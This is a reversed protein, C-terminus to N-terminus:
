CQTRYIVTYASPFIGLSKRDRFNGGDLEAPPQPNYAYNDAEVPSSEHSGAQLPQKATMEVSSGGMEAIETGRNRARRRFFFVAGAVALLVALGGVVGGVIGGTSSGGTSSGGPSPGGPSPGGTLNPEAAGVSNTKDVTLVGVWSAAWDVNAMAAITSDDPGIDYIDSTTLAPGPAQALWFKNTSWSLGLFAGQMFSRGLYYLPSGSTTPRCPFYTTASTVPFPSELQLALLKMPIRVPYQGSRYVFGFEMYATSNVILSFQPDSTNWVYLGFSPVFTVPLHKAIESCTNQPLYLYPSVTTLKITIQSNTTGVADSTLLNGQPTAGLGWPSGGQMVGFTINQLVVELDGGNKIDFTAPDSAVRSRDYGGLILSGPQKLQASGIHMGWSRSNIAGNAALQNVPISANIPPIGVGLGFSQVLDAAGMSLYSVQLDYSGGGPLTQTAQDIRNISTNTITQQLLPGDGIVMSDMMLGSSGTLVLAGGPEYGLSISGSSTLKISKTNSTTSKTANYVGGGVSRAPCSPKATSNGSFNCINASLIASSFVGGMYVDINQNPNGVIISFANWPGDPGYPKASNPVLLYKSSAPRLISLFSLVFLWVFTQGRYGM